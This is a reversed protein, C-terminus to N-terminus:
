CVGLSLLDSPPVLACATEKLFLILEETQKLRTTLVIWTRATSQAADQQSITDVLLSAHTELLTVLPTHQDLIKSLTLLMRLHTSPTRPVYM